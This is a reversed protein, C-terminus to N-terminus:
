SGVCPAFAACGLEDATPDLGCESFPAPLPGANAFLRSLIAVADAIDLAGDDNARM